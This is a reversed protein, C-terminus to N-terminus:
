RDDDSPLKGGGWGFSTMNKYKKVGGGRTMILAEYPVKGGLFFPTM